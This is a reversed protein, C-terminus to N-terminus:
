LCVLFSHRGCDKIFIFVFFLKYNRLFLIIKFISVEYLSLVVHAIFFSFVAVIVVPGVYFNVDPQDRLLIISILGCVSAVALKGLFLIFDGIGNITAVQLANSWM